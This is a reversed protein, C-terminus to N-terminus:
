ALAKSVSCPSLRKIFVEDKNKAKCGPAKAYGQRLYFREANDTTLISTYMNNRVFHAETLHILAAGHGSGRFEKAVWFERIFGCMEEFFWNTFKTPQFQIFGIIRGDPMTRVIATNDGDDNMERFLGDWDSVNIDLEAFYQKFADQFVPISFNSILVDSFTSERDFQYFLNLCDPVSEDLFGTDQFGVKKFMRLAAANNMHVCVDVREYKREKQLQKLILRLAQTGFGHNQFRKDIMFQQLDYCAPEEDTDRVLAVGITQNDDALGIVRANSSRYAYGRAIVGIARDLYGKQDDNVTMKAVDLWNHENVDFLKIM